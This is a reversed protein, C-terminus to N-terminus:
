TASCSSFPFSSLFSRRMRHLHLSFFPCSRSGQVDAGMAAFREQQKLFLNIGRSKGSRGRGGGLVYESSTSTVSPTPSPQKQRLFDGPASPTPSGRHLIENINTPRYLNKRPQSPSGSEEILKRLPPSLPDLLPPPQPPKSQAHGYPQPAHQEQHRGRQQQSYQSPHQQQQRDAEEQKRRKEYDEFQQRVSPKQPPLMSESEQQFQNIFERMPIPENFGPPPAPHHDFQRPLPQHVEPQPQKHQGGMKTQAPRLAQNPYPKYMTKYPVQPPVVPRLPPHPYQVPLPPPHNLPPVLPTANSRSLEEAPRQKSAHGTPSAYDHHRQTAQWQNQDPLVIFGLKWVNYKCM